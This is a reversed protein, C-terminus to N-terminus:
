SQLDSISTTSAEAQITWAKGTQAKNGMWCM